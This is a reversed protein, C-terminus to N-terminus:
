QGAGPGFAEAANHSCNACQWGIGPAATWRFTGHHPRGRATRGPRTSTEPGAEGGAGPLRVVGPVVPLYRSSRTKGNFPFRITAPRVFLIVVPWGGCLLGGAESPAM